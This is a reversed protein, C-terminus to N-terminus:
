RKLRDVTVAHMAGAVAAQYESVPDSRYRDFTTYRHGASYLTSNYILVEQNQADASSDRLPIHIRKPRQELLFFAHDSDVQFVDQDNTAFGYLEQRKTFRM